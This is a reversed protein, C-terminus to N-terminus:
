KNYYKDNDLFFLPESQFHAFVLKNNEYIKYYECARLEWWFDGQDTRRKAEESFPALWNAISPLRQRLWEWAQKDDLPGAQERTWGKPIVIGWLDRPEAHWRRVDKGELWPKLFAAANL